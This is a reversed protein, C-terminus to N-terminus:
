PAASALASVDPGADRSRWYAAFSSGILSHFCASIACPVATLPDAFHLTALVAGLVSNQMGVEISNTRAQKEPIGLVKSVVYGLTFGGTHLALVAGLLKLGAQQVAAANSAMVSGCCLVIMAVAVLPAFPAAREVARPFNQNLAVGLIVPALVVQLTSVFLSWGNVPVLTGVLLKTLLPTMFVAALTSVSTLMVSLAVDAQALYTVVNSATGGPCSAVLCIGIAFPTPLGALRSLMYGLLPMITYQLSVGIAVRKPFRAVSKFDEMTLTTGMSLMTLALAATILDKHFWIFSPPYALATGTGALLWLPFFTTLIASLKSAQQELTSLGATPEGASRAGHAQCALQQQHCLGRRFADAPPRLNVHLRLPAIVPATPQPTLRCQQSRRYAHLSCSRKTTLGAM